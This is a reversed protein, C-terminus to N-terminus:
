ANCADRGAPVISLSIGASRENGCSAIASDAHGESRRGHSCAGPCDSDSVGGGVARLANAKGAVCLLPHTNQESEISHVSEVFPRRRALAWLRIAEPSKKNKPAGIQGVHLRHFGPTAQCMRM